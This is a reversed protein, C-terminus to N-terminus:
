VAIIEPLTNDPHELKLNWGQLRSWNRMPYCQGLAPKNKGMAGSIPGESRGAPVSGPYVNM